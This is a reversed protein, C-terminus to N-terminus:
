EAARREAARACSPPSRCALVGVRSDISPEQRLCIVCLGISRRRVLWYVGSFTEMVASADGDAMQSEGSPRIRLTYTSGEIREGTLVAEGLAEVEARLWVGV